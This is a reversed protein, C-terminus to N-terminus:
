PADARVHEYFRLTGGPRLVRRIEALAGAPDAVSCLMLSTVATDFCTDPAPLTEATGDVVRIPAPAQRAATLTLRRLYPEPEVTLIETV